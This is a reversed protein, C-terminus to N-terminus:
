RDNRYLYLRDRRTGAQIQHYGCRRAAKRLAAAGTNVSAYNHEQVEACALDSEIFDKLLQQLKCSRYGKQVDRWTGEVKVLKM